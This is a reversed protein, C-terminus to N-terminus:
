DWIGYSYKLRIGYYGDNGAAGGGNIVWGEMRDTNTLHYHAELSLFSHTSMRWKYGFAGMYTFAFYSAPYLDGEGIMSYDRTEDLRPNYHVTGLGFTIYPTGSNKKFYKGFRRFNFGLLVNAQALQADISLGRETGRNRDDAFVNSYSAEAGLFFIPTVHRKLYLGFEPRIEDVFASFDQVETITGFYNSTGIFGGVEYYRASIKQASLSGFSLALVALVIKKMLAPNTTDSKQEHKNFRRLHGNKRNEFGKATPAEKSCFHLFFERQQALPIIKNKLWM